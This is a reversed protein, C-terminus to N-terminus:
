YIAADGHYLEVLFDVYAKVIRINKDDLRGALMNRVNGICTIHINTQTIMKYNTPQQGLTM